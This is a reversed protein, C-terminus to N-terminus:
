VYQTYKGDIVCNSGASLNYGGSGNPKFCKDAGSSLQNKISTDFNSDNISSDKVYELQTEAYRTAQARENNKRTTTMARNSIAYASAIVVALVTMALLVEVITDGRQSLRKMKLM